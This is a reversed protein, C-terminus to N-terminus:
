AKGFVGGGGLLSFGVGEGKFFKLRELYGGGKFGSGHVRIPPTSTTTTKNKPKSRPVPAFVVPVNVPPGRRMKRRASKLVIVDDIISSLLILILYIQFTFRVKIM